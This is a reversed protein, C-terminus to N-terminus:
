DGRKQPFTCALENNYYYQLAQVKSTFTHNRGQRINYVVWVYSQGHHPRHNGHHPRHNGHNSHNSSKYYGM